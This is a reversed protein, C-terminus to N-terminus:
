LRVRRLRLANGVVSLSSLSMAASAWIPSILVGLFPYLVGAAVPITLVNYVFALFLNQRINRMTARSLRRARAIARLDGHVLTVGASEMAVDTGTGMAIGVQAQALAPADNIGDGAMAVIRGEAQLRKVVEHKQQPLVEAIVEDIRTQHAVAEATARSDGTLMIVRLGDEHLLQIAEPTTPRIPDAVGLLGVFRGDVAVLMVTQGQGRLTDLRAQLNGMAIGQDTLLGANGLIVARGEVQGVVGKGTISRFDMAEVLRLGKAEAGKVIAAALPHESGRELSATLRLLEEESFGDVPEVAMLRPKGETLTGTKDVVLTDAKEFVELVEANKILVGSEAGRGTGVMIAMPTALGLACPCAVILVAVANVLAHALRPQTGWVSWAAFTLISVLLVAPVFYRAVQNVLREIPARSRQAEGVMRVIQALLTDAGVKEARMLLGGTGNITGGVIKSGQEKEVPIPEGSIMSEDVASRGETVIGDVPVKEGPRIRLVDGPRVQELPIDEERGEGRVVRATKPALGLLRKIAGSTQSRARVELVQGLLVLVTVVAATDFYSEVAGSAMRFGEPFLWPAITAALSYLYAAGVGLAILTFMNPSRFKLSSWARQFFPWGCWLVVPTSLLLQVWNLLAMQAHLPRGPLMDAMALLFVPVSLVLGVWFRRSMDVLEPNPSEEVTVTRPELAMGCIPCSGPQDRVIQPHMPCTYEVKTTPAVAAPELAMGCKPCHGPHDQRVEPDMPCTYVAGSPTPPQSQPTSGGGMYRQPAARFKDLCHQSCFYYRQGEYEASGAAAAPDVTMGCVPDLAQANSAAAGTPLNEEPASLYRHPDARFKELCSPCCFYYTRGDHTYSGRAAAPDVAMGCVPDTASPGGTHIMKLHEKDDM